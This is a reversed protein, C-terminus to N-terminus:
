EYENKKEPPKPTPAFAKAAREMLNSRAAAPNQWEELVLEKARAVPVRMIGKDKDQWDYKELLPANAAKFDALIKMREAARDESLSPTATYYRMLWVLFAMVLFTGLIAMVNAATRTKQCCSEPNM